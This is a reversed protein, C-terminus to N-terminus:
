HTPKTPDNELDHLRTLISPGLQRAAEIVEKTPPPQYLLYSPIGLARGIDDIIARGPNKKRGNIIQSLYSESMQAKQAVESPQAGLAVIWGGVYNPPPLRRPRRQKVMGAHHNGYDGM